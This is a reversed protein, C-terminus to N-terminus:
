QKVFKEFYTHTGNNILLFYMGKSFSSTNISFKNMGMQVNNITYSPVIEAGMIDIIRISVPETGKSNYNLNLNDRLPNPYVEVFNNEPINVPQIDSYTYNGDYDTQMLRYYSIGPSPNEDLASYNLTVTSNGAGPVTAVTQWYDGESLQKEITFLKNNTESATRWNLLVNNSSVQYEAGFSVLTIPM